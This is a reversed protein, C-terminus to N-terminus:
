VSARSFRLYFWPLPLFFGGPWDPALEHLNPKYKPTCGLHTCVGILILYEPHVSRYKNQAYIPQQQVLSNPDRLDNDHGDLQHLMEATRRIIWVPKGRWTVVAQEGRKLLSLDVHVPGADAKAKAGPLWSSLFPSLACVAGVGGLLSASNVLFRRKKEDIPKEPKKDM